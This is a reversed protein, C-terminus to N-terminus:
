HRSIVGDEITVHGTVRFRGPRICWLVFCQGWVTEPGGGPRHRRSREDRKWNGWPVAWLLVSRMGERWSCNSFSFFAAQSEDTGNRVAPLFSRERGAGACREELLAPEGAGRNMQRAGAASSFTLWPLCRGRAHRGGRWCSGRVRHATALVM